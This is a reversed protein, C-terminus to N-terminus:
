TSAEAESEPPDVHLTASPGPVSDTIHAQGGGLNTIAAFQDAIQDARMQAIAVDVQSLVRTHEGGQPDIAAQDLGKRPPACCRCPSPTTTPRAAKGRPNTYGKDRAADHDTM